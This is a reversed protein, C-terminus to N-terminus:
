NHSHHRFRSTKAASRDRAPCGLSRKVQLEASGTARVLAGEGTTDTMAQRRAAGVTLADTPTMIHFFVFLFHEEVLFSQAQAM